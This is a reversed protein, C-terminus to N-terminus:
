ITKRFIEELNYWQVVIFDVYITYKMIFEYHFIVHL